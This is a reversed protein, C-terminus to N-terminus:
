AITVVQYSMVSTWGRYYPFIKSHLFGADQRSEVNSEQPFFNQLCDSVTLTVTLLFFLLKEMM